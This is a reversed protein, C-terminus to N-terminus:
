VLSGIRPNPTRTGPGVVSVVPQSGRVGKCLMVPDPRSRRHVSCVARGGRGNPHTRDPQIRDAEVAQMQALVEPFQVGLNPVADKPAAYIIRAVGAVLAAAHCMACPECSSVLTSGPLQLTAGTQCANRVAAIEAHATPDHDRVATNVGTGLVTGDCVVLAGFPLQGRTANELALAVARAAMAEETGDRQM